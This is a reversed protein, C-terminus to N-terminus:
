FVNDKKLILDICPFHNLSLVESKGCEVPTEKHIAVQYKIYLSHSQNFSSKFEPDEFSAPVLRVKLALSISALAISGVSGTLVSRFILSSSSRWLGGGFNLGPNAM